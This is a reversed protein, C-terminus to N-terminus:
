RTRVFRGVHVSQNDATSATLRYLYHGAPLMMGNLEIEHGWGAGLDVLPNTYVQRGLIDVVEIHVRAPWPLDFVMRTTRRFPNPYNAHVILEDPLIESETSVPPVVEIGFTMSATNGEADNAKYTFPTPSLAETPTGRITRTEPTFTLGKPLTPSLTYTIPSVGIAVPLVLPTIPKALPYSQNAITTAFSVSSCTAGRVAQISNLWAQFEDDAPACLLQGEFHFEALGRLKLLGRPLEGTLQNNNIFLYQLNSLNGLEPPIKGSLSNNRLNLYSLKSLNGLESPIQGSLDNNTLDLSRLHPLNGIESPIEGSLSNNGLVLYNLRSSSKGLEPPIQGSLSNSAMSLISLNLLNGIESPITGSLSNSGLDLHNLNLLNGLEPPVEGSLENENLFLVHM